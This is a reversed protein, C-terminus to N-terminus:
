IGALGSRRKTESRETTSESYDGESASAPSGALMEESARESLFTSSLTRKASAHIQLGPLRPELSRIGRTM